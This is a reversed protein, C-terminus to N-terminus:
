SVLFFFPKRSMVYSIHEHQERGDLVNSVVFMGTRFLTELECGQTTAKLPVELVDSLARPVQWQCVSVCVCLCVSVSMHALLWQRGGNM